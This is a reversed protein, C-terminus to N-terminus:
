VNQITKELLPTFSHNTEIQDRGALIVHIYIFSHHM